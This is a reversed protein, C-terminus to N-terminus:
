GQKRWQQVVAGVSRGLIAAIEENSRGQAMLESLQQKEGPQWVKRTQGKNARARREPQPGPLQSLIADAWSRFFAQGEIPLTLTFHSLGPRGRGSRSAGGRRGGTHGSGINDHGDDDDGDDNDNSDEWVCDGGSMDEHPEDYLEAASEEDDDQASTDRQVQAQHRTNPQVPALADTRRRVRAPRERDHDRRRPVSSPEPRDVPKLVHGDIHWDRHEECLNTDPCQECKYRVHVLEQECVECIVRGTWAETDDAAEPSRTGQETDSGSYAKHRHVSSHGPHTLGMNDICLPCLRFPCDRCEHRTSGALDSGCFDCARSVSSEDDEEEEISTM